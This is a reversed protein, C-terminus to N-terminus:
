QKKQEELEKLLKEKKKAKQLKKRQDKVEQLEKKIRKIEEDPDDEQEDLDSDSDSSMDSEMKAEKKEIKDGNRCTVVRTTRVPTLEKDAEFTTGNHLKKYDIDRKERLERETSMIMINKSGVSQIM